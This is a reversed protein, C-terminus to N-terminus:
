LFLITIAVIHCYCICCGCVLEQYVIMQFPLLRTIDFIHVSFGRFSYLLFVVGYWEMRCKLCMLLLM